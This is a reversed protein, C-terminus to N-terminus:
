YLDFFATTLYKTAFADYGGSQADNRIWGFCTGDAANWTKLGVTIWRMRAFKGTSCWIKTSGNVRGKNRQVM